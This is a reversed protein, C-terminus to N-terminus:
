TEGNAAVRAWLAEVVTRNTSLIGVASGQNFLVSIQAKFGANIKFADILFNCTPLPFELYEGLACLLGTIFQPNSAIKKVAECFIVTKVDLVM